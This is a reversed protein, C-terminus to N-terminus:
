WRREPEPCYSYQFGRAGERRDLPAPRDPPLVGLRVLQARFEYRVRVTAVPRPELAIDVHVVDHGTRRGMGTAAYEDSLLPAKRQSKPEASPAAPAGSAQSDPRSRGGGDLVGEDRYAYPPEPPPPTERYFVAEIVGLNDTQGLAAGYSDREGTFTFRRATSGSVQWGPVVVTEYADLVWKSATWPDTHKADITNLGDVALAVAVRYPHPNSLRLAYDRGRLAEVYVTGRAAYEPRPSGDVLVTVTCGDTGAARAGAAAALLTGALIWRRMAQRM